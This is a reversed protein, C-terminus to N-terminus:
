GGVKGKGAKLLSLPRNYSKAYSSSKTDQPPQSLSLISIASSPQRGSSAVQDAMSAGFKLDYRTECAKVGQCNRIYAGRSSKRQRAISIVM